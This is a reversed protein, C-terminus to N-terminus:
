GVLHQEINDDSQSEENLRTVDAFAAYIMCYFAPLTFLIGICLALVGAMMIFFAVIMFVFVLFWQRTILKRSSELADWFSMKYFAVFLYSWSYAISFYFVPLLLLYHWWEVTPPLNGRFAMPDSLAEVYWEVLGSKWLALIFPIFCVLIILGQVLATLALQGIYDFGKFFDSFKTTRGNWLNHAVIYYGVVLPPGIFLNYAFSGIFPIISVVITILFFILTFGLFAGWDKKVIDFGRSIYDGFKFDYGENIIQEIKSIPNENM